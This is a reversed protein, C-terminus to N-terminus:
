RPHQLHHHFCNKNINSIALSFVLSNNNWLYIRSILTLKATVTTTGKTRNNKGLEKFLHKKLKKQTMMERKIEIMITREKAQNAEEVKM